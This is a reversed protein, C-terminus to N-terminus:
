ISSKKFIQLGALYILNDLTIFLFECFCFHHFISVGFWTQPGPGAHIRMIKPLQIRILISHFTLDPDANFDSNLLKLTLYLRPRGYISVFLGSHKFPLRPPDVSWNDLIGWWKTFLQIWIRMLTSLQNRTLVLPICNQLEANFMRFVNKAFPYPVSNDTEHGTLALNTMQVATPKFPVSTSALINVNVRSDYFTHM